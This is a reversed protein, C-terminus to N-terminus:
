KPSQKEDKLVEEMWAIEREFLKIRSSDPTSANRMQAIVKTLKQHELTWKEKFVASKNRLLLPGFLLEKEMFEKSYPNSDSVKDAVLVEYIHDNEDLIAEHTLIYDNEYFWRRVNRADVNPQAIIREVRSLKSKGKELITKILSGGMGAIIIQSVEEQQLVELGDGLRVDVQENLNYTRITAKASDFPGENIEGAIAKATPDSLCVYCPLYAHDSGIDAFYAGNPLFSAATLLRNSLKLNNNM